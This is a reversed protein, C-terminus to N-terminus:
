TTAEVWERVIKGIVRQHKKLDAPTLIELVARDTGKWDLLGSTDTVPKTKPKVPKAGHHLIIQIHRIPQIRLTIRDESGVAFNPSNWKITEGLGKHSALILKRLATIEKAMPHKLAAVLATVETNLPM